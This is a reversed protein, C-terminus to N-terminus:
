SRRWAQRRAACCLASTGVLPQDGGNTGWDHESSGADADSMYRRREVRGMSPLGPKIRSRRSRPARVEEHRRIRESGDQRKKARLGDEGFDNATCSLPADPLRTILMWGEAENEVSRAEEVSVVNAHELELLAVKSEERRHRPERERVIEVHLWPEDWEILRPCRM